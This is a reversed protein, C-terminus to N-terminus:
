EFTRECTEEDIKFKDLCLRASDLQSDLLVNTELLSNYDNVYKAYKQPASFELGIWHGLVVGAVLLFIAILIKPNFGEGKSSAKAM